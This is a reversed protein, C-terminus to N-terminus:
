PRESESRGEPSVGEEPGEASLSFTLVLATASFATGAPSCIQHQSTSSAFSHTCSNAGLNSFRLASLCSTLAGEREGAAPGRTGANTAINSVCALM